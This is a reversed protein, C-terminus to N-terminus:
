RHRWRAILPAFYSLFVNQSLGGNAKSRLIVGKVKRSLLNEWEKKCQIYEFYEIDDNGLEKEMKEIKKELELERQKDKKAKTISYSITETRIHCKLYEWLINKDDIPTTNKIQSILSKIRKVYEPDLLLDNNFKWFGKGRCTTNYLEVTLSIISHDSCNGPKIKTDTILYSLGISVLWFDLRSQVLGCKSKERRTFMLQGPNRIRWIDILSLEKCLSKLNDSYKSEKEVKEGKKGLKIDLYTNFDGGIILNKDSYDDLKSKITELFQNQSNVNDKTQSYINVITLENGEIMLNLLLFRGDSDKIRNYNM